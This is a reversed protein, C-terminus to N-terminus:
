YNKEISIGAVGGRRRWVEKRRKTKRGGIEKRKERGGEM